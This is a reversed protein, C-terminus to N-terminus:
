KSGEKSTSAAPKKRLYRAVILTSGTVLEGIALELAAPDLDTTGEAIGNAHLLVTSLGHVIMSASALAVKHQALAARLPRSILALLPKM